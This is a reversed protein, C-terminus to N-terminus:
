AEGEPPAVVFHLHEEKEEEADDDTEEGRLPPEEEDVVLWGDQTAVWRAPRTLTFVEADRRDARLTQGEIEVPLSTKDTTLPGQTALGRTTLWAGAGM